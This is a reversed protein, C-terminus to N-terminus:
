YECYRSAYKSSVLCSETTTGTPCYLGSNLTVHLQKPASLTIIICSKKKNYRYYSYFFVYTDLKTGVIKCQHWVNVHITLM